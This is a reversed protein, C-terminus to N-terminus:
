YTICSSAGSFHDVMEVLSLQKIFLPLKKDDGSLALFTKNATVVMGKQKLYKLLDIYNGGQWKVERGVAKSVLKQYNSPVQYKAWYDDQKVNYGAWGDFLMEVSLGKEVAVWAVNFAVCANADNKNADTLMHILLYDTKSEVASVNTPFVGTIIWLGFSFVLIVQLPFRTKM